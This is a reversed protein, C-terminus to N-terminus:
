HLDNNLTPFQANLFVFVCLILSYSTASNILCSSFLEDTSNCMSSFFTTRSIHVECYEDHHMMMMMYIYNYDSKTEKERCPKNSSKITTKKIYPRTTMASLSATVVVDLEGDGGVSDGNDDNDGNNATDM